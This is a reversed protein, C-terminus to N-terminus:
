RGEKRRGEVARWGGEQRRLGGSRRGRVGGLDLRHNLEEGGVGVGGTDRVGVAEEREVDGAGAAGRGLDEPLEEGDGRVRGPDLGAAHAGHEVPEELLVGLAGETLLAGRTKEKNM